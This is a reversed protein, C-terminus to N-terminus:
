PIWKSIITLLLANSAKLNFIVRHSGGKKPTTFFEGSEHESPKIIRKNLFKAIETDIITQQADTLKCQPNM